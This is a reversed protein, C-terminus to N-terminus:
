RSRGVRGQGLGLGLGVKGYQVWDQGTRDTM